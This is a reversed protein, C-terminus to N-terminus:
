VISFFWSIPTVGRSSIHIYNFYNSTFDRSDGGESMKQCCTIPFIKERVPIPILYCSLLIVLGSFLQIFVAACSTQKLLKKDAQKWEFADWPWAPFYTRDNLDLLSAIFVALLSTM